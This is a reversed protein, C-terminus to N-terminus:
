HSEELIESSLLLIQKQLSAQVRNQCLSAQFPLLQGRLVHILLIEGGLALSVEM